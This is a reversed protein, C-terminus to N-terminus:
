ASYDTHTALASRLAAAKARRRESRPGPRLALAELALAVSELREAALDDGPSLLAILASAPLQDLTALSLGLADGLADDIDQSGEDSPGAKFRAVAAVLRRIMRLLYDEQYM